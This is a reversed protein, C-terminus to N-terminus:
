AIGKKILSMCMEEYADVTKDWDYNKLVYEKAKRKYRNVHKHESLLFDMRSRLSECSGVTFTYGFGNVIELHEGIDSVLCCNGFSMAELLAVPSGEIEAPFVAFYANSLLEAKLKGDVYGVQIINRNGDMAEIMRHRFSSDDAFEGALVLKKKAHIQRYAKVLDLIGKERSLRGIYLIFDGRSLKHKTMLDPAEDNRQSVGNPLLMVEGRSKENFYGFLRDSVVVIRDAFLRASYDSLRLFIRVFGNWKRKKWEFSHVHTITKLQSVRVLPALLSAISHLHVIDVDNSLLVHFTALFSNSIKRYNNHNISPLAVLKMGNYYENEDCFAKDCYITVEHGRAVLRSGIEETVKEIGGGYPIGKVGIFAIRM